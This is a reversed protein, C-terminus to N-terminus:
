AIRWLLPGLVLLWAGEMPLAGVFVLKDPALASGGLAACGLVFVIGGVLAGVAGFWRLHRWGAAV